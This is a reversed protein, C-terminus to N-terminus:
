KHASYDISSQRAFLQAGKSTTGTKQPQPKGKQLAKAGDTRYKWDMYSSAASTGTQLWSSMAGQWAQTQINLARQNAGVQQSKLSKIASVRNTELRELDIGEFFSIEAAFRAENSTGAAGNDAMAAIMSGMQYDAERARDEMQGRYQDRTDRMEDHLRDIEGLAQARAAASQASAQRTAIVSGMVNMAGQAAMMQWAM